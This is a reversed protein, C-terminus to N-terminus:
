KVKVPGFQGLMSDFAIIRDVADDGIHKRLAEMQDISLRKGDPTHLIRKGRLSQAISKTTGGADYARAQAELKADMDDRKMAEVMDRM